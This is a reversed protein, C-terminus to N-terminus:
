PDQACLYRMGPEQGGGGGGLLARTKPVHSKSLLLICVSSGVKKAM